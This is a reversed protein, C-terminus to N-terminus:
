VPMNDFKAEVAEDTLAAELRKMRLPVQTGESILDAIVQSFQPQLELRKETSSESITQELAEATAM